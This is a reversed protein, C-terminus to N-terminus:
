IWCSCRKPTTCYCIHLLIPSLILEFLICLPIYHIYKIKRSTNRLCFLIYIIYNQNQRSLLPINIKTLQGYIRRKVYINHYHPVQTPENMSMHYYNDSWWDYRLRGAQLISYLRNHHDKVFSQTSNKQLYPSDANFVFTNDSLGYCLHRGCHLSIHLYHKKEFTTRKISIVNPFEVKNEGDSFYLHPFSMVAPNKILSLAVSDIHLNDSQAEIQCHSDIFLIKQFKFDWCYIYKNDDYLYWLHHAVLLQQFTDDLKNYGYIKHAYQELCILYPRKDFELLIVPYGLTPLKYVKSNFAIETDLNYKRSIQFYGVREDIEKFKVAIDQIYLQSLEFM